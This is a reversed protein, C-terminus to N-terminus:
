RGAGAMATAAAALVKAGVRLSEENLAFEASHHPRTVGDAIAGGVFFYSGPVRDLFESVDDSPSVPPIRLASGPGLLGIATSEVLATVSADNVVAPTHEPIDLDISVGEADGVRRCLGELRDLAGSRQQPTFTRLTGGIVARDPVVNVATGAHVFGASCICNSGQYSMGSTVEALAPVLRAAAAIVNGGPVPDAAHGGSGTITLHLSHAEAMAVGERLAIFGVPLLSTVHFGALVADDGLGDLAGAEVMAKAGCVAEEAPQFLFRYCGPLSEARQGLVRAVGLLAATHVDHGCAHMRGDAASRFPVDASETVPLADMDARLVVTRGPRGGTLEFVAGVPLDLPRETLGLSSLRERVLATTRTEAFALEPHTHLDRRVDVMDDFAADVAGALSTALDAGPAPAPAGGTGPEGARHATM